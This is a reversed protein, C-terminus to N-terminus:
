RGKGVVEVRVWKNTWRVGQNKSSVSFGGFISGPCRWTSSWFWAAAAATTTAAAAAIRADSGSSKVKTRSVELDEVAVEVVM